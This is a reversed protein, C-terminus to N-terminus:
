PRRRRGKAWRMKSSFQSLRVCKAVAARPIAPACGIVVAADAPTFELNVGPGTIALYQAALVRNIMVPPEVPARKSQDAFGHQRAEVLVASTTYVVEACGDL